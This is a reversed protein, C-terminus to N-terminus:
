ATGESSVNGALSQRMWWLFWRDARVQVDFGRAMM